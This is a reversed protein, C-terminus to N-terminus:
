KRRSIEYERLRESHARERDISSPFTGLFGWGTMMLVVFYLTPNSYIAFIELAMLAMRRYSPHKKFGYIELLFLLIATPITYVLCAVYYEWSLMDMWMSQLYAWVAQDGSPKSGTM